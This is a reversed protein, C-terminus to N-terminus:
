RLEEMLKALQEKPLSLLLSEVESTSMPKPKAKRRPGFYPLKTVERELKFVERQLDQMECIASGLEINITALEKKKKRYIPTLFAVNEQCICLKEKLQELKSTEM